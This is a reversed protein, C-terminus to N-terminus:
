EGAGATGAQHGGVVPPAEALRAAQARRRSAAKRDQALQQRYREDVMEIVAKALQDLKSPKGEITV